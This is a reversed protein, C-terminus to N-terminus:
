NIQERVIRACKCAYCDNFVSLKLCLILSVATAVTLCFIIFCSIKWQRNRCFVQSFNSNDVHMPFHFLVPIRGRCILCLFINNNGRRFIRVNTRWFSYYSFDYASNHAFFFENAEATTRIFPVRTYCVLTGDRWAVASLPLRFFARSFNNSDFIIIAHWPSYSTQSRFLYSNLFFDSYVFCLWLSLLHSLNPSLYTDCLSSEICKYM